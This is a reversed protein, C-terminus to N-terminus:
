YFDDCGPNLFDGHQKRSLSGIDIGYKLLEYEEHYWSYGNM